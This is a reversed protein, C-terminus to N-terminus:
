KLRFGAILQKLKDAQLNMENSISATEEANATNQQTVADIQHLGQTVQLIGQSQEHSAIAIDSILSAVKTAEEVIQNLMNSTHEAIGAGAVIQKSSNSIMQTTEAAAKASRAALNRVEEAVVAFGKGHQGARAAEVAANLALLNTQFSIDDIVKVVKQVDQSNQTILEMSSIMQRMMNQGSVAIDNANKALKNAETAHQANATTQGGIESMSATIEEISAASKTAGDSLNASASTVHTTGEAVQDVTEKVNILTHRISSVMNRLVINMVDKEGRIKVEYTWDGSELASAMKTVSRFSHVIQSFANAMAGIEDKRNLDEEPVDISVDGERSIYTMAESARRIPKMVNNHILYVLISAFLLIVGVVAISTWKITRYLKADDENTPIGAFIIGIVNDDSGVIPHYMVNMHQGLVNTRGVSDKKQEFVEALIDKNELKTGVMREGKDNKLTTMIRTDGLFITYEYGKKTKMNDVWNEKDLRFGGSVAGVIKGDKNKIAAAVRIALPINATSEFYATPQKGNIPDTLSKLSELSDGYKSPNSTRAIVQGHTDCLTLFESKYPVNYSNFVDLAADRRMLALKDQDDGTMEFIDRLKNNEALGDVQCTLIAQMLDLEATLSEAESNMTAELSLRAISKYAPVGIGVSVAILLVFMVFIPILIKALLSNFIKM